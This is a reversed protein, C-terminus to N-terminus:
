CQGFKRTQRLDHWKANLMDCNLNNIKDLYNFPKTCQSSNGQIIEFRQNDLHCCMKSRGRTRSEFRVIHGERQLLLFSRVAM